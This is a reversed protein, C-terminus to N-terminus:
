ATRTAVLDHVDAAVVRVRAFDGAALVGGDAVRVVGDIEPADASSRAIAIGGAVSDVLVDIDSGIRARLRAASISAQVEM